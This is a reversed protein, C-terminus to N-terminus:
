EEFWRLTVWHAFERGCDYAHRLDEDKDRVTWGCRFEWMGLVFAKLKWYYDM